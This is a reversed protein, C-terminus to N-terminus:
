QVELASSIGTWRVARVLAQARQGGSVWKGNRGGQGGALSSTGRCASQPSAGRSPTWCQASTLPACQVHDPLPHTCPAGLPCAILALNFHVSTVSLLGMAGTALSTIFLLGAAGAGLQAAGLKGAGSRSEVVNFATM